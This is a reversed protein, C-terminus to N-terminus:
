QVETLLKATLAVQRIGTFPNQYNKADSLEEPTRAVPFSDTLVFADPNSRNADFAIGAHRAAERFQCALQIGANAVRAFAVPQGFLEEYDEVFHEAIEQGNGTDYAVLEVECGAAQLVPAVFERAYEYERPLRKEQAQFAQVNENVVETPTGMERNGVPLYVATASRDELPRVVRDQWNAVAGTAVIPTGEPTQVDPTWLSRDLSLQVGSRDMWSVALETAQQESGSWETLWAKAGSLNEQLTKKTGIAGVLAGLQDVSQPVEFTEAIEPLLGDSLEYVNDGLEFNEFTRM